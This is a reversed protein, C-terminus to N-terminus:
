RAMSQATMASSRVPAHSEATWNALRRGASPRRREVAGDVGVDDRVRGVGAVFRHTM